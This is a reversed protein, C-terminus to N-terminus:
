DVQEQAHSCVPVGGGQNDQWLAVAAKDTSPCVKCSMLVVPPLHHLNASEHYMIKEPLM